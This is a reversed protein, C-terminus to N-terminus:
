GYRNRIQKINIFEPEFEGDAVDHLIIIGKWWMKNAEGAYHEWQDVDLFCGAVISSIKKGQATTRETFDRIHTHGQICSQHMKTLLAHSPHEGGIPRGMVGSTFYHSYTVGDVTIPRLFEIVQWGFHKYQLDDISITGELEARDETARVIRQEHNGLTLILEPKYRKKKSVIQKINYDRIPQFLKEQADLVSLIDEKYRRGEFSRKGRDYSSLSPMDAFDGLNIIVDPQRDVILKGLLSFRENHFHPTVHSDPIILHTKTM